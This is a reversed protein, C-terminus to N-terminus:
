RKVPMVRGCRSHKGKSITGYLVHANKQRADATDFCISHICGGAGAFTRSQGFARKIFASETETPM